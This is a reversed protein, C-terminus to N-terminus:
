VLDLEMKYDDMVFGGGIDTTLEESVKFGLEKYAAISATNNKNVTLWVTCYHENKVSESLLEILHRAVGCHRNAKKIYLKSLFLAKHAPEPKVAAYGVLNEEIYPMYYTYGGSTFDDFIKDENQFNNLMYEIQPTGLIPTYYESWIEAATQALIEADIRTKAIKISIKNKVATM